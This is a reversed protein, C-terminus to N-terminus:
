NISVSGNTQYDDWNSVQTSFKIDTTGITATVIYLTNEELSAIAIEKNNVTMETGGNGEGDVGVTYEINFKLEPADTPLLLYEMVYATTTSENNTTQLTGTVGTLDKKNEADKNLTWTYKGDDWSYSGRSYIEGTINIDTIKIAPQNKGNEVVLILKSMIHKFNENVKTDYNTHNDIPTALMWDVNSAFKATANQAGFATQLNETAAYEGESISIHRNADISAKDSSYPAYAYFEYKTATKDWYKLTQNARKGDYAWTYEADVKSGVVQYNQMVNTSAGAVTKYAWVGFDSHYTLLDTASAHRTAKSSFPEFGIAQPAKSQAVVEENVLDTEACAAFLAAAAALMLYNKKM